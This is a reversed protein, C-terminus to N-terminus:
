IHYKLLKLKINTTNQTDKGEAEGTTKVSTCYSEVINFYVVKRRLNTLLVLYKHKFFMFEM